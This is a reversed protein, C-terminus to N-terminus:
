VILLALILLGALLWWTLHTDEPVGRGLERHDTTTRDPWQEPHSRYARQRPPYKSTM